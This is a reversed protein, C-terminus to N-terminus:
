CPVPARGQLDQHRDVLRRALALHDPHGQRNLLIRELPHDLFALQGHFFVARIIDAEEKSELGGFPFAVILHAPLPHMWSLNQSSQSPSSLDAPSVSVSRATAPASGSRATAPTRPSRTGSGCSRSAAM